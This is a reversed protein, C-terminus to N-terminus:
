IREAIRVLRRYEPRTAQIIICDNDYNIKM